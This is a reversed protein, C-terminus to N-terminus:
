VNNEGQHQNEQQANKTQHKASFMQSERHIGGEGMRTRGRRINKKKPNLGKLRNLSTLLSYTNKQPSTKLSRCL